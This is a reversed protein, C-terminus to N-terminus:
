PGPPPDPHKSGTAKGPWDHGPPEGCWCGYSGLVQLRVDDGVRPRYSPAPEIGSFEPDVSSRQAVDTRKTSRMGSGIPSGHQHIM